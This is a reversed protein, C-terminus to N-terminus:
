RNIGYMNARLIATTSGFSSTSSSFTSWYIGLHEFCSLWKCAFRVFLLMKKAQRPCMLPLGATHRRTAGSGGPAESSNEPNDKSPPHRKTQPSWKPATFTPPVPCGAPKHDEKSTRAHGPARVWPMESGHSETSQTPHM